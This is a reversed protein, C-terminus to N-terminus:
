LKLRHQPLAGPFGLRAPTQQACFAPDRQSHHQRAWGPASPGQNGGGLADDPRGLLRKPTCGQALLGDESGPSTFLLDSSGGPLM